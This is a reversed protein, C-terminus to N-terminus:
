EASPSFVPDNEIEELTSTTPATFGNIVKVARGLNMRGGSVTRGALTSNADVTTMLIKKLELAGQAPNKKYLDVFVASAGAHMLAVQGAIHPTAMSTGTLNQYQDGSYTSFIATGPAGLDVTVRGWAAQGFKKDTSDTNTVSIIYPSNCGTPVDGEKDVDIAINATAAASLIGLKGMENYIDNWVSYTPTDCKAYDVGFSSNTVVVNAGRQGSSELWLKKQAMAYGYAKAVVSFNGSSGGILMMRTEWNVGTVGVNNNGRAGVIGAVHTGHYNDTLKGSNNYANWGNVDDVYGNGDDDVGNGAVEGKNIWLNDVLDAHDMQFGGDIIAVVIEDSRHIPSGRTIEWAEQANVHVPATPNLSWQKGFSLDNPLSRLSMKYDQFVNQVSENTQITRMMVPLSRVYAPRIMYLGLSPILAEVQDGSSLISGLARTSNENLRVVLDGTGANSSLAVILVLASAFFSRVM